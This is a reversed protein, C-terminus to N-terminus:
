AQGFDQPVRLIDYAPYVNPWTIRGGGSEVGEFEMRHEREGPRLPLEPTATLTNWDTADWAYSVKGTANDPDITMAKSFTGGGSLYIHLTVSALGLTNFPVDPDTEKDKPELLTVELIPKTDRYKLNFVSM